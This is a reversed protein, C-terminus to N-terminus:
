IRHVLQERLVFTRNILQNDKMIPSSKLSMHIKLGNKNRLMLNGTWVSKTDTLFDEKGLAFKSEPSKFENIHKGIVEELSYGLMKEAAHNLYSIFGVHDTIIVIDDMGDLTATYKLLDKNKNLLQVNLQELKGETEKMATIDHCYVAIKTVTGESDFIPYLSNEFWKNNIQEIFHASKGSRVTREEEAMHVTIAGASLLDNVTMHILDDAKKKLQKAMTENAGLVNGDNDLLLMADTTTNLLAQITRDREKVKEDMSHKYLAMQITTKFAREELPKILYGFPETIIAKKITADDSHATLYVIPIGYRTRIQDAAQIGNMEGKLTIDMVVIDPNFEGAMRIADEGTAVVKPVDYGMETLRSRIESGTVFEDEVVLIKVKGM